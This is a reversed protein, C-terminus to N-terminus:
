LSGACWLCVSQEMFLIIALAVKVELYQYGCHLLSGTGPMSYCFWFFILEWLVMPVKCQLTEEFNTIGTSDQM